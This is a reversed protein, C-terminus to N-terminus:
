EEEEEDLNPVGVAVIEEGEMVTVTEWEGVANSVQVDEEGVIVLKNEEKGKVEDGLMAGRTYDEDQTVENTKPSVMVRRVRFALVFDGSGEWKQGTNQTISVEAEPGGGVPVTGGSWLTGDVEVALNGGSGRTRQTDGTKAGTVTKIGTIVYLPKRYRSKELWRRVTPSVDICKEQIFDPVPIFQTTTVTDFTLKENNRSM